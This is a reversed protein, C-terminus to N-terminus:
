PPVLLNVRDFRARRPRTQNSQLILDNFGGRIYPDLRNDDLEYIDMRKIHRALHRCYCDCDAETQSTEEAITVEDTSLSKPRNHCHRTCCYCTTCQKFFIEIVETTIYSEFYDVLCPILELRYLHWYENYLHQINRKFEYSKMDIENCIEKMNLRHDPHGFSCILTIIDPPFSKLMIKNTTANKTANKTETM